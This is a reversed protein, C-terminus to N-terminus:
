EDITLGSLVAAIQDPSVTVPHSHMPGRGTTPDAELRVFAHPTDYLTVTVFQKSTCATFVIASILLICVAGGRSFLPCTRQHLQRLRCVLSRCTIAWTGM